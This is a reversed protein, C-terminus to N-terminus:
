KSRVGQLEQMTAFVARAYEVGRRGDLHQKQDADRAMNTRAIAEDVSGLSKLYWYRRQTIKEEPRRNDIRGEAQEQDDPVHTEDLFVMDDAADLTLAVGGAQTNLLLIGVGSDPDDFLDVAADRAGGTVAGTVMRHKANLASLRLSILDLVSTFQSVIVVKSDPAEDADEPDLLNRERLWQELWDWKNSPFDPRFEQDSTMRGYTSAFQKLRTLTALIGVAQLRGGEVDASSMMLMQQYAKEQKPDMPLWVAVPSSLDAPNLPTGMYAKPPLDPSVEEKTRRLMYRDLDAEFAARREERFAGIVRAGGYGSQDVEWFREIWSWRGSFRVRDLWNLIGWLRQPKGRMPTGSLAIRLGDEPDSELLMAGTRTQTPKGTNKLLIRQCEDMVLAGWTREFLEPYEHQKETRVNRPSHGCDVVTSKPRDSAEWREQRYRPEEPCSPGEDDELTLGEEDLFRKHQEMQFEWLSVAEKHKARRAANIAECEPCCWWVRTRIMEINIIVWTRDLVELKAETEEMPEGDVVGPWLAEELKDNRASRTGTIVCIRALDGLRTQIERAWAGNMAAVPAVILYPGVVGSEVIGAIAETTKGLGPTDAILVNRGDATFRAGSTQYPRSLLAQALRPARAEVGPLPVAALTRGLAGQSREAEVEARAWAALRPGIELEEGFVERINRCVAMALPLSWRKKVQSWYAGPIEADLGAFAPSTEVEIRRGMIEVRARM